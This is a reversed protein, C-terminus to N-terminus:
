LHRCGIITRSREAGGLNNDRAFHATVAGLRYGRRDLSYEIAIQGLNNVAPLLGLVESAFFRAGQHPGIVSSFAPNAPFGNSSSDWQLVGNHDWAQVRDITIIRADNINRLVISNDHYETGAIRTFPAAGCIAKGSRILDEALSEKTIGATGVLFIILLAPYFANKTYMTM